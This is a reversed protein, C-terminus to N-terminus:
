DNQFNAWVITFTKLVLQNECRHTRVFKRMDAWAAACGKKLRHESPLEPADLGAQRPFDLFIISKGSMGSFKAAQLQEVRSM